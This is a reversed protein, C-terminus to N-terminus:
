FEIGSYNLTSLILFPTPPRSVVLFVAEEGLSFIGQGYPKAPSGDEENPLTLHWCQYMYEGYVSRAYKCCDFVKYKWKCYAFTGECTTTFLELLKVPTINSHQLEYNIYENKLDEM